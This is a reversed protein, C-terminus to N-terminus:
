ALPKFQAILSTWDVRSLYRAPYKLTAVNHNVINVMVALAVLPPSLMANRM